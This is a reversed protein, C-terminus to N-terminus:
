SALAEVDKLQKALSECEAKVYDVTRYLEGDYWGFREADKPSLDGAHACDFGFWWEDDPRNKMAGSFTLSGHVDFLCDLRMDRRDESQSLFVSIIGRKGLPGEWAEKVALGLIEPVKDSYEVKFLPHGEPVRVYGCLHGGRPHRIIRCLFGNSEWPEPIVETEWPKDLNSM